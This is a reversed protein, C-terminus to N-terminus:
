SYLILGELLEGIGKMEVKETPSLISFIFVQFLVFQAIHCLKPKTNWERVHELLLRYENMSLVGIATKVQNKADVSKCLADFLEFLKHPRRLEFALHIAKTYNADLVVNELEQTKLVSEEKWFADEKDATTSDHWLNIVADSGGTALMETKKGVTLAWVKDEHQDYTAVCENTKVTWLNNDKSGTVILTRGSSTTCTDLCLVIDTHGALVYSCSM